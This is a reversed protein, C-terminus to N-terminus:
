QIDYVFKCGVTAFNSCGWFQKGAREGYRATRLILNGGCRPCTRPQQEVLAPTTAPTPPLVHAPPEVAKNGRAMKYYEILRNGDILEIRPNVEAAKTAMLTFGGTTIFYGKDAPNNVNTLAGLFDRVDHPTVEGSTFKKCQIYYRKGDKRAIVDIGGDNKGGVVEADYGLGRFMEAVEEEFQASSMGKLTYLIKDDDWNLSAPRKRTKYVFYIVSAAIVVGLFALGSAIVQATHTLVYAVIGLSLFGVLPALVDEFSELRRRRWYRRQAM